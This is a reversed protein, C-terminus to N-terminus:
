KRRDKGDWKKIKSKRVFGDYSAQQFAWQKMFDWIGHFAMTLSPLSLSLSGGTNVNYDFTYSIGVTTIFAAIFGILAKYRASSAENLLGFKKSNKLYQLFYAVIIGAGFQNALEMENM